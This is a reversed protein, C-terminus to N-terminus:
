QAVEARPAAPPLPAVYGIAVMLLGAGIFSVIREIGGANSLDVAFLKLVVVALLAAGIGWLTRMGRRAAMRMLVMASVTWVLSLLAQVFQSAMLANFQYPVDMYNSVSRLLMLNFWVYGAGAAAGKRQPAFRHRRFAAAALLLAFGTTLDLPNLLPLYPLPAMAGSYLLNWRAALLLTWVAAVPLLFRQHWAALPNLPWEDARCRLLVATAAMMAWAPLYRAWGGSVEWGDLLMRIQEATGGALLWGAIAHNLVPWIMLWPAAIRLLHVAVLAAHPLPWAMRTWTRLTYESATWAAAYACWALAGPTHGTFHMMLLMAGSIGAQVLWVPMALKRLGRWDMRCALHQALLALLSAGIAYFSLMAPLDHVGQFGPRLGYQDALCAALPALAMVYWALGAGPLLAESTLALSTREKEDASRVAHRHFFLSSLWLGAGLMLASLFPGDLLAVRSDLWDWRTRYLFVGAALLQVAVTYGGAIRWRMRAAIVGLLAAVVLASATLLNLQTAGSSRSVVEYWTGALLWAAAIALLLTALPDRVAAPVAQGAGRFQVAVIFTGAALILFGLWINANALVAADLSIIDGLFGIWAAGQVLLGFTWALKRQQRLGVWVVGAGELAWAAATWRGDLAFPLALTGFVVGLALFSECLLRSTAGLRRWLALALGAYLLGIALASWAMGFEMHQVLGHQLGIAALPTGFVLTGDVYHALKPAQRQAYFVAIAIYMLLFLGLFLQASLYHHPTYRLVGWSTGLVFTCAFGLVNLARWSKKTAIYLIGANLIACYSFLAIHNGSGTSVLVPAAFGGIIGFVALWVANQLVALVCAFAVLVTLLAFALTAPLLHYVRFAAFTTLILVAIATGQVPLSIGPRSDRIRWGWALLALDALVVGSLRLEIPTNFNAAAYKLLFSVGMFLILLGLKAVVNGGFLWDRAAVLWAPAAPAAPAATGTAATAATAAPAARSASRASPTSAAPDMPAPTAPPSAGAAAGPPAYTDAAGPLAPSAPVATAAPPVPTSPPFPLSVVPAPSRAPVPPPMPAQAPAAAQQPAAAEPAPPPAPQTHEALLDRVQARLEGVLHRLQQVDSENGAAQRSARRAAAICYIPMGIWYVAAAVLGVM